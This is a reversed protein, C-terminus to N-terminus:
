RNRDPKADIRECHFSHDRVNSTNKALAPSTFTAATLVAGTGREYVTGKKEASEDSRSILKEVARKTVPEGFLDSFIGAIETVSSIKAKELANALVQMDDRLAIRDEQKTPWRDNIRDLRYTPNREDPGNHAVIAKEMESTIYEALQELQSCLGGVAYGCDVATKTIYISPPRKIQRNQYRLNLYRKILKLAVIQQADIRPPVALPLEKQDAARLGYALRDIGYQARRGRIREADQTPMVAKTRVWTAFGYPNAPVREEKGSDPSHFIDGTRAVRPEESPDLIAIDMHMFAFQLQICRTRRVIKKADAFGQLAEELKDLVDSPSWSSPVNIEVIADVDFRDDDTGSIITAGIAMSGQAYIQSEDRVLYPRLPSLPRELHEKLKEYRSAAVLRDNDSLEIVTALDLLLDDLNPSTQFPQM